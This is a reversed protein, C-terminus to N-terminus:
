ASAAAREREWERLADESYRVHRGFRVGRPGVGRHRWDLVTKLPVGYREALDENTHWQASV